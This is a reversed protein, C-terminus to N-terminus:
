ALGDEERGAGLAVPRCTVVYRRTGGALSGFPYCTVLTLRDDDTPGAVEADWMSHIGIGSVRYRRAGDFTEVVLEDGVRLRELFAFWSDRHGALVCNGRGNPTASGDVHGPGFALSSGSAGTLVTRQVRLRPVALRAVPYTDAWSWPRHPKGDILHEAFAGDILREALEAKAALWAQEGLLLGGLVLCATALVILHRRGSM